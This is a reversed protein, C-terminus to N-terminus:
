GTWNNERTTTITWRDDGFFLDFLFKWLLFPTTRLSFQCVKSGKEATTLFVGLVLFFFVSACDETVKEAPDGVRPIRDDLSAVVASRRLYQSTLTSSIFLSSLQILFVGVVDALIVFPKNSVTLLINRRFFEKVGIIGHPEELM